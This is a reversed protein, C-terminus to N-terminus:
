KRGESCKKCHWTSPATGNQRTTYGSRWATDAASSPDYEFRTCAGCTDCVCKWILWIGYGKKDVGYTTSRTDEVISM